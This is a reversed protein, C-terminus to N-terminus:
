VPLKPQLTEVSSIRQDSSVKRIKWYSRVVFGVTSSIRWRAPARQYPEHGPGEKSKLRPTTDRRLTSPLSCRHTESRERLRIDSHATIIITPIHIGSRTLQHHLELGTMEPMQLDVILCEPLGDPLSALFERASEFTKSQLARVRLTRQLAKLVSTDDDVIAIWPSTEPMIFVTHCGLPM